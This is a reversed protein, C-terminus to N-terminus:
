NVIVGNIDYIDIRYHSPAQGGLGNANTSSAVHLSSATEAEDIKIEGTTSNYTICLGGSLVSKTREPTWYKNTGESLDDTDWNEIAGVKTNLTSISANNSSVLGQLTGDASQFAAVIETLSDLAAPDTNSVISNIQNQLSNDGAVRLAVETNINNQLTTDGAARVVLEAALGVQLDSDAAARTSAETDINGQLLIDAASRASAESTIATDNVGEAATARTIENSISTVATNLEGHLENIAVALSAATTDLATGIGTFTQLSDVNGEETSLRGGQVAVTSATASALGQVVAMDSDLTDVRGDIVNIASSNGSMLSQLNGDAAEFAAVVEVITDLAPITGTTIANVANQVSTIAAQLNNDGTIRATNANAVDTILGSVANARSTVEATIQSQLDSDASERALQEADINSQLTTDASARTSAESSIATANVGEAATARTVEATINGQLVSDASARTSAETSAGSSLTHIQGQLDNDLATVASAIDAAVASKAKADTFYENSGEVLDSTSLAIKTYSSGDFVEWQDSTENWRIQAAAEDGRMVRFGANETPTGSTVNSNLDIINDALSITESNVTTVTGQVSLNGQVDVDGLFSKNGVHDAAIKSDVYGKNAAEGDTQPVAVNFICNGNMEVDGGFQTAAGGVTTITKGSSLIFNSKVQISESGANLDIVGGGSTGFSLNQGSDAYMTITGSNDELIKTGNIYLSGPGIYVDRWVKDPSGLSYTDDLSPVLNQGISTGDISITGGSVSVGDGAVLNTSFEGTSQNYSLGTGAQVSARAKATTFYENSGQPIDTTSYGEVATIRSSLATDAAARTNAEADVTSSVISVAYANAAVKAADAKTTADASATTEAALQAADAKSTADASSTAIAALVDSDRASEEASFSAAVDSANAKLALAATTATDDAKTAISATISSAFNADDGLAAALENLTDLAGPASAVLAAVETDTYANAAAEAADAKTTADASAASIAESKATNIASTLTTTDGTQASKVTAVESVLENIAPVVNTAVTSLSAGGKVFTELVGIDSDLGSIDAPTAVGSALTNNITTIASANAAVTGTLTSDAAEFAAVIEQLTDLSEPSSGLITTVQAQLDALDGATLSAVATAIADASVNGNADIITIDDISLEGIINVGNQIRFKKNSSM